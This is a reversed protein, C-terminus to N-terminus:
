QDDANDGRNGRHMDGSDSVGRGVVARRDPGVVARIRTPTRACGVDPAPECDRCEGPEAGTENAQERNANLRRRM